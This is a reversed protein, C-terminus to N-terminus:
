ETITYNSKEVEKEDIKLGTFKSVEGSARVVLDKGAETELTQNAGDLITYTPKKEEATWKAYVTTDATIAKSFDFETKWDAYWGGFTYGTRTPNASPKTATKGSEIEQLDVKSGEGTEFKVTYVTPAPAVAKVRSFITFQYESCYGLEFDNGGNVKVSVNDSSDFEYGEKPYLYIEFYYYEGEEITTGFIAGDDYEGQSPYCNIYMGESTFNAGTGLSISPSSTETITSGIEPSDVTINIESIKQAATGQDALTVTVEVCFICMHILKAM